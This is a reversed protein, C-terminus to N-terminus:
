LSALLWVNNRRFFHFLTDLYSWEIRFSPYELLKVLCSSLSKTYNQLHRVIRLRHLLISVSYFRDWGVFCHAYQPQFTQRCLDWVICRCL